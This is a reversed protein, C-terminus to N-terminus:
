TKKIGFSRAILDTQNRIAKLSDSFATFRLLYVTTPNARLFYFRGSMNRGARVFEYNFINGRLKGAFNETKGAVYGQLFRLKQEEDSIVDAMLSEPAVTLKRVELYGQNREGNVYEVNPSVLSPKSTMKWSANPLDFEYEVTEDSFSITQGFAGMALILSATAATLFKKTASKM